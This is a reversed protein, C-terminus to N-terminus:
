KGSSLLSIFFKTKARKKGEIREVVSKDRGELLVEEV